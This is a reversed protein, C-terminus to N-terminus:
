IESPMQGGIWCAVWRDGQDALAIAADAGRYGTVYYEEGSGTSRSEDTAMRDVVVLVFEAKRQRATECADNEDEYPGGLPTGSPVPLSVGCRDRLDALMGAAEELRTEDRLCQLQEEALPLLKLRTLERNIAAEISM